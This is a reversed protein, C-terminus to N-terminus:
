TLFNLIECNQGKCTGFIEINQIVDMFIFGSSETMEKPLALILQTIAPNSKRLQNM